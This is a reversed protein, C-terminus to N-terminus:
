IKINHLLKYVFKQTLLQQLIGHCIPSVFKDFKSYQFVGCYKPGGYGVNDLKFPALFFYRLKQFYRDPCISKYMKEVKKMM